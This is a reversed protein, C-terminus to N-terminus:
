FDKFDDDDLPIVEQPKVERHPRVVLKAKGAAGGAGVAKPMVGGRGATLAHHHSAPQRTQIKSTAAAGGVIMTLTGVMDGLENAQASLEESASAAEESNAANSQTVKDMQAVATNVQDIGKAQEDTAAAVESALQAVKTAGEQINHLIDAVEKSVAVGNNANVQSGEIMASTNKAAEASRQALNRVEEAVVAFGKGADGARAAEVAANLALLNTQFAIEDITKIIKATEDSSSKIKNIADAMRVMAEAGKQASKMADVAMLNAQKANDANQKVMSAMEELSASTEELSSASESAGEAMSQSSQAVQGSASSVQISGQTLGDIVGNIPLTISRATFFALLIGIVIASIGGLLVGTRLMGVSNTVGTLANTLETSQADAFPVISDAMNTAAEDFGGMMKNGEAPGSDIYAQATKKGTEFYADMAKEMADLDALGDTDNEEKFMDRFEQMQEKFSAKSAEAMAFGDDLGDLARTAAIDTLFQQVQVSNYKMDVALDAFKAGEESSHVGEQVKGVTLFVGVVIAAMLILPIAFGIALKASLSLSKFM